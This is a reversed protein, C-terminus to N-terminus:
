RVLKLTGLPMNQLTSIYIDTCPEVVSPGYHNKVSVEDPLPTPPLPDDEMYAGYMSWCMATAHEITEIDPPQTSYVRGVLVEDDVSWGVGPSGTCRLSYMDYASLKGDEWMAYEVDRPSILDALEQARDLHKETAGWREATKIAAESIIYEDYNLEM